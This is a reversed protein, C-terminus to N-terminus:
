MADTRERMWDLAMFGADDALPGADVAQVRMQAEEDAVDVDEKEDWEVTARKESEVISRRMLLALERAQSRLSHGVAKTGDGDHHLLFTEPIRLSSKPPPFVTMSKRPPKLSVTAAQEDQDWVTNDDDSAFWRPALLGPGHFFLSPSAFPDLLDSPRRFLSPLRSQLKQVSPSTKSALKNIRHEPMFMTWNYIGNYAVLGRIGFKADDHTETLALSAALSAGLHSGFVFMDRGGNSPPALNAHLWAYAFSTEHVPTPWHLARSDAGGWRYNIQAVPLHQLFAPLPAAADDVTPSSPLHIVLAHRNRADHAGNFLHVSVHGASGCRVDVREPGCRSSLARLRLRPLPPPPPPPSPPRRFLLLPRRRSPM